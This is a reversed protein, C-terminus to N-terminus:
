QSQIHICTSSFNIKKQLEYRAYNGLKLKHCKSWIQLNCIQLGRWGFFFNYNMETTPIVGFNKKALENMGSEKEHKKTDIVDYKKHVTRRSRGIVHLCWHIM